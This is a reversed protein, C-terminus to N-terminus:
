AEPPPIVLDPHFAIYIDSPHGKFASALTIFHRDLHTIEHLYEQMLSTGNESKEENTNTLPNSNDTDCDVCGQETQAKAVHMSKNVIPLCVTLWILMALMLISAVVDKVTYLPKRKAM